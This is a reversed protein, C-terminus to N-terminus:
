ESAEVKYGLGYVTKILSPQSVSDLKDRLRKIHVDVTSDWSVKDTSWAHNLIMKRTVTRGSNGVLYELIDFEKRRLDIEKGDRYVKREDSDILLGQHLLVRKGKRLPPRRSLATIRAKLEDVHFPKIVYDDAGSELLRVRTDMGGEGSLILVPTQVGMARLRRCVDEGSMDPLGLDLTIVAYDMHLAYELAQEGTHAVDVLYNKVLQQRVREALRKNDDVVLLKM